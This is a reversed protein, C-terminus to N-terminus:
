SASRGRAGAGHGFLRLFGFFVHFGGVSGVCNEKDIAVVDDSSPVVEFLDAIAGSEFFCPAGEDMVEGSERGVVSVIGLEDEVGLIPVGGGGFFDDCIEQGDVVGTGVFGGVGEDLFGAGVEAVIEAFEMLTQNDGGAIAGLLEGDDAVSGFPHGGFLKPVLYIKGVSTDAAFLFVAGFGGSSEEHVGEVGFGM